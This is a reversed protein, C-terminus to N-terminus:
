FVDVSHVGKNSALLGARAIGACNVLIHIENFSQVTQKVANEVSAADTVDCLVFIANEGLEAALAQGKEQNMDWIAARGGKMLLDRVVSEGIGSAGGTVVAVSNKIHM